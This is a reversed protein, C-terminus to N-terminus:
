LVRAVKENPQPPNASTTCPEGSLRARELTEDASTPWARNKFTARSRRFDPAGEPTEEPGEFCRARDVISNGWLM